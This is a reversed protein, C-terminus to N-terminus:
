FLNGIEDYKYDYQDELDGMGNSGRADEVRILKNQLDGTGYTYNLDDILRSSEAYRTLKQINGNADYIYNTKYDKGAAILTPDKTGSNKIINLESQKIRQLEDYSFSRQTLREEIPSNYGLGRASLTSMGVAWEAINGNYLSKGPTYQIADSLTNGDRKFDGDFYGLFLVM